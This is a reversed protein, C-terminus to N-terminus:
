LTPPIPPVELYSSLMIPKVRALPSILLIQLVLPSRSPDLSMTRLPIKSVKFVDHYLDYNPMWPVDMTLRAQPSFPAFLSSIRLLVMPPSHLPLIPYIKELRPWPSRSSMVVNVLTNVKYSTTQAADLFVLFHPFPSPPYLPPAHIKPHSPAFTVPPSTTPLSSNLWPM